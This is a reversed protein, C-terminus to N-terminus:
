EDNDGTISIEDLEEEPFTMWPPLYQSQILSLLRDDDVHVKIEKNKNARLTTLSNGHSLFWESLYHGPGSLKRWESVFENYETKAQNAIQLNVSNPAFVDDRLCILLDYLLRQKLKPQTILARNISPATLLYQYYSIINILFKLINPFILKSAYANTSQIPKREYYGSVDSFIRHFNEYVFVDRPVSPLLHINVHGPTNKRGTRGATQSFETMSKPMGMMIMNNLNGIDLGLSIVLNALLIDIEKNIARQFLRSVQTTSADGSLFEISKNENFIQGFLEQLSKRITYGDSKRYVYGLLFNYADGVKNTLKSSFNPDHYIANYTKMMSNSMSTRSSRAVPLQVVTRYKILRPKPEFYSSYSSNEPITIIKDSKMRTICCLLESENAITATGTEFTIQFPLPDRVDWKQIKNSIVNLSRIYISLLIGTLGYLSHVEDFVLYGIPSSQKKKLDLSTGCAKCSLTTFKDGLAPAHYGCSCKVFHGGFFRMTYQEFRAATSNYFMNDPTAITILPLYDGSEKPSFMYSIEHGCSCKGIIRHNSEKALISNRKGCSPCADFQVMQKGVVPNALAKFLPDFLGIYIGGTVDPSKLLQRIEYVFKTLRQFMDQNLIRTPFILVSRQKTIISHLAANVMFVLTKGSGTPAKIISTTGFEDNAIQKIRNQISDWQFKFFSTDVNFSKSAALIVNRILGVLNKQQLIQKDNISLQNLSDLFSEDSELVDLSAGLVPIERITDFVGFTSFCLTNKEKVSATLVGNTNSYPNKDFEEALSDEGNKLVHQLSEFHQQPPLLLDGNSIKTIIFPMLICRKTWESTRPPSSSYSNANLFEVGIKFVDNQNTKSISIELTTKTDGTILEIFGISTKDPDCKQTPEYDLADMSTQNIENLTDTNADYKKIVSISDTSNALDIQKPNNQLLENLSFEVDHEFLKPEVTKPKFESDFNLGYTKGFLNVNGFTPPLNVKPNSVSHIIRVHSSKEGSVFRREGYRIFRPVAYRIKLKIKTESSGKVLFEYFIHPPFRWVQNLKLRYLQPPVLYNADFANGLSENEVYSSDIIQRKSMLNLTEQDDSAPSIHDLIEDMWPELNTNTM